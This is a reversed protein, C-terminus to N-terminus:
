FKLKICREYRPNLLGCLGVRCETAANQQNIKKKPMEGQGTVLVCINQKWEM